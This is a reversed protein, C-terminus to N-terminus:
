PPKLGTGAFFGDILDTRAQIDELHTRVLELLHDVGEILTNAMRRKLLSWASEVPNLEPAYSPLQYVRLWPRAAILERMRASKHANLNDWVLVIPGDLARHAADLMDAFQRERFGNKEGKRKRHPMTRYFFRSREGPRYASLGALSVRGSGRKRVRVVPTRGRRGWTRSRAPVLTHSAEDEFVIWAGLRRAIRKGAALDEEAVARHSRRRPRLSQRRTDASEM